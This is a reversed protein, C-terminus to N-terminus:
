GGGARRWMLLLFAGYVAANCVLILVATIVEVRRPASKPCFLPGIYHVIFGGAYPRTGARGRLRNELPTLPCTWDAFNVLVAWVIAPLHVWAVKPTVLLGLGGLFAFALFGAHFLFTATAALGFVADPQKPARIRASSDGGERPILNM